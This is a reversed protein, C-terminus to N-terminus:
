QTPKKEALVANFAGLFTNLFDGKNGAQDIRKRIESKQEASLSVVVEWILKTVQEYIYNLKKEAKKDLQRHKRARSEVRLMNQVYGKVIEQLDNLTPRLKALTSDKMANIKQQQTNSGTDASQPQKWKVVTDSINDGNTSIFKRNHINSDSLAVEVRGWSGLTYKYEYQKGEFVPLIITYLREGVKNMQYLSDGAHWYNFSGTIYVGKDNVSLEPIYATFRVGAVQGSANAMFGLLIIWM